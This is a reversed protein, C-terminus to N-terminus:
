RKLTALVNQLADPTHAYDVIAYPDHTVVEMRGPAPQLKAM